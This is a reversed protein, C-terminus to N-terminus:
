IPDRFEPSTSLGEGLLRRTLPEDLDPYEAQLERVITSVRRTRDADDLDGAFEIDMRRFLENRAQTYAVERRDFLSM